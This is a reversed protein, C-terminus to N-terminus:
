RAPPSLLLMRCPPLLSKLVSRMVPMMVSLARLNRETRTEVRHIGTMDRRQRVICKGESNM